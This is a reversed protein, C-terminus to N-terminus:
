RKFSEPWIGVIEKTTPNVFVSTQTNPNIYEVSGPKAPIPVVKLADKIDDLMIDKRGTKFLSNYAHKSLKTGDSLGNELVEDFQTRRLARLYPKGNASYIVKQTGKKNRIKWLDHNSISIKKGKYIGATYTFVLGSLISIVHASSIDVGTIPDKKNKLSELVTKLQEADQEPANRDHPLKGALGAEKYAVTAEADVKGDKWLVHTTGNWTIQYDNFNFAKKKPLIKQLSQFRSTDIKDLHYRGTQGDFSVNNALERVAQGTRYVLESFSDFFNGHSQEFNIYRELIKEQELADTFQTRLTQQKGEYLTATSASLSQLLAEQKRKIDALRNMAEQLLEADIRANPSPDVQDRFDQIYRELRDESVDLAEIISKSIVSYTENFYQQSAEVAKGKITTDSSYEEVANQIGQIMKRTSDNSRKLDHSFQTVEQIDIRSM